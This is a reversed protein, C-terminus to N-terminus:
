VSTSAELDTRNTHLVAQSHRGLLPGALTLVIGAIWFYHGLLLTFHERTLFIWTAILALLILVALFRRWRLLKKVVCSLLYFLLLPNVLGSIALLPLEPWVPTDQPFHQPEIFFQLLRVTFIPTVEACVWGALDTGRGGPVGWESSGTAPPMRVAPLFFAAVFLILGLTWLISRSFRSGLVASAM